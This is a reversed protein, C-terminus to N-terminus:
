LTASVECQVLMNQVKLGALVNVSYVIIYVFNLAAYVVASEVVLAAIGTYTAAYTAGLTSIASARARLLRLLILGTLLLNLALSTARYAINLKYEISGQVAQNQLQVGDLYAKAIGAAKSSTLSGHSSRVSRGVYGDIRGV